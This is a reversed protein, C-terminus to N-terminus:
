AEVVLLTSTQGAACIASIAGKYLRGPIIENFRIGQYQLLPICASAVATGTSVWVTSAGINQIFGGIRDANTAVAESAVETISATGEDIDAAVVAGSTIGGFSEVPNGSQDEITVAQTFEQSANKVGRVKYSGLLGNFIEQFTWSM